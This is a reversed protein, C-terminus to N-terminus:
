IRGNRMIYELARDAETELPRNEYWNGNEQDFQKCLDAIEYAQIPYGRYTANGAIKVMIDYMKAYWGTGSITQYEAALDKPWFPCDRYGSWSYSTNNLKTKRHELVAAQLEPPLRDLFNKSDRSRDYPWKAMLHDVNIPDGTNDFIFNNAGAYKAPIYYMRSLDKTQADGIDELESNLAFWFHRIESQEIQRELEFVLRFKPQDSTSSATSYCVFSYSGFRSRLDDELEGQPIYDDVDVAAWGGWHLVNKNARTTGAEYLAPSILEADRKGKKEQESLNYLLSTFDGWSQLSMSRHTKNDFMSKFLTLSIAM